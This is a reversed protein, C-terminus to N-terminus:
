REVFGAETVIQERMDTTSIRKMDRWVADSLEAKREPSGHRLRAEELWLAAFLLRVEAERQLAAEDGLKSVDIKERIQVQLARWQAPTLTKGNALEWSVGFMLGTAGILDNLPLGRMELQRDAIDAAAGSRLYEEPDPNVFDTSFNRRLNDAMNRGTERRIGPDPDYATASVVAGGSAKAPDAADGFGQAFHVGVEAAVQHEDMAPPDETEKSCGMILLTAAVACSQLSRATMGIM